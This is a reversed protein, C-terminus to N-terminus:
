VSKSLTTQLNNQVIRHNLMEISYGSHHETERPEQMQNELNPRLQGKVFVLQSNMQRM